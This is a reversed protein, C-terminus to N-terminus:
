IQITYCCFLRIVATQNNLQTSRWGWFKRKKKETPPSCEVVLHITVKVRKVSCAQFNKESSHGKLCYTNVVVYTDISNFYKLRMATYFM